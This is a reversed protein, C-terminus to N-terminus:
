FAMMPMQTEQIAHVKRFTHIKHESKGLFEESYSTIVQIAYWHFAQFPFRHYYVQLVTM